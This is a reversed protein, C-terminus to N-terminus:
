TLCIKKKGSIPHILFPVFQCFSEAKATPVFVNPYIWLELSRGNHLGHAHKVCFRTQVRINGCGDGVRAVVTKLISRCPPCRKQAASALTEWSEQHIPLEL